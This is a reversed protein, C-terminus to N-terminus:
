NGYAAELAIGRIASRSLGLDSLDRDSLTYLENLTRRYVRWKAYDGRAKEVRLNFRDRLSISATASNGYTTTAM